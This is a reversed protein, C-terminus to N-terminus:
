NSQNLSNIIRQNTIRRAAFFSSVVSAVVFMVFVSIVTPAKFILGILVESSAVPPIFTINLWQLLLKILLLIPIAILCGFIGMILGELCFIKIINKKLMGMAGLTGIEKTRENVNMQMTNLLTLLVIFSIIISLVRFIVGFMTKVKGYSLSIKDWTKSEVKFGKQKLAKFVQDQTTELKSFDKVTVVLRQAGETDYLEQASSFNMLVFKDNTGPNGTNYIQGVSIDLANAIGDKTSTLLTLNDGEKIKLNKSLEASIAVVDKKNNNSTPLSVVGKEKIRGDISTKSLQEDDIPVIAESIFITSSNGNSIIGFLSLRPTAIAVNENSKVIAKIDELEKKTWLYDQPSIKGNESFGEKSITFHGLKENVIAQEKLRSFINNLMGGIVGLATFGLCITFITVVSRKKNRFINRLAFVINNM